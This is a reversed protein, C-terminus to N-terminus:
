PTPKALSDIVREVGFCVDPSFDQAKRALETNLIQMFNDMVKVKAVLMENQHRLTEIEHKADNLIEIIQENKM